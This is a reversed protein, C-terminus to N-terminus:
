KHRLKIFGPAPCIFVPYYDGYKRQRTFPRIKTRLRACVSVFKRFM